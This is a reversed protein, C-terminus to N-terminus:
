CIRVGDQELASVGAPPSWGSFDAVQVMESCKERYTPCPSPLSWLAFAPLINAPKLSARLVRWEATELFINHELSFWNSLPFISPLLQPLSFSGACTVCVRPFMFLLILFKFTMRLVFSCFLKKKNNKKDQPFCCHQLGARATLTFVLLLSFCILWLIHAGMFSWFHLSSPVM